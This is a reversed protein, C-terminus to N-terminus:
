SCLKTVLLKSLYANEHKVAANNKPNEKNEEAKDAASAYVTHTCLQYRDSKGKTPYAGGTRVLFLVHLPQEAKKIKQKVFSWLPVTNQM